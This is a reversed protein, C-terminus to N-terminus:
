DAGTVLLRRYDGEGHDDFPWVGRWVLYCRNKEPELVLTDLNMTVNHSQWNSEQDAGAGDYTYYTAIATDGRLEFRYDVTGNREIEIDAAAPLYPLPDLKKADRRHGNYFLNVFGTPLVDDPPPDYIGAEKKRPENVRPEWGFLAKEPPTGSTINRNFWFVDDVEVRNTNVVDAYGLVIVDGEPKFPALDHEYLLTTAPDWVTLSDREEVQVDDYFVVRGAQNAMRLVVHMETAGLDAPWTGTAFFRSMTIGVTKNIVCIVDGDAELQVGQVQTDANAQVHVSLTFQRGGLPEEFSLTQVVRGNAAGSVQLFHYDSDAPDVVQCITVGAPHGDIPVDEEDIVETLPSEFDSNLLLNDPQDQMFVALPSESPTVKGAVPDIDYTRKLIVTGTRQITATNPYKRLGVLFLSDYGKNEPFKTEM